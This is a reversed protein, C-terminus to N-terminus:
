TQLKLPQHKRITVIFNPILLQLVFNANKNMANLKYIDVCGHESTIFINM